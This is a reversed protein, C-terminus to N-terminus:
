KEDSVKLGKLGSLLAADEWETLKENIKTMAENGMSSFGNLYHNMTSYAIGTAMSLDRMNKGVGKMREKFGLGFAASETTTIRTSM